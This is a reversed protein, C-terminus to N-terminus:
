NNNNLVVFEIIINIIFKYAQVITHITYTPICINATIKTYLQNVQISLSIIAIYEILDDLFSERLLYRGVVNYFVHVTRFDMAYM